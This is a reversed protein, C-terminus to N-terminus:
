VAERQQLACWEVSKKIMIQACLDKPFGFIGSSIAPLSVKEIGLYKALELTNLVCSALLKQNEEKPHEYWVPGVTHIIYKCKM